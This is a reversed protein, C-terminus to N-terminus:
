QDNLKAIVAGYYNNLFDQQPVCLGPMTGGWSWISLQVTPQDVRSTIESVLMVYHNPFQTMLWDSDKPSNQAAKILNLHILLAIDTGPTMTLGTAQPIGALSVWNAQDDVSQYIGTAQLWSTLEEPRTLASLNSSPDGTWTGQWFVDTSNRLAGLFMWDAQPAVSAGMRPVMANYDQNLLDPSPTVQLSGIAASGNEFLATAFNAFAVPDRGCWMCMFTAPGCLNLAGQQILRPNAVIDNLRDAVDARSLSSWPSTGDRGKFNAIVAQADSVNSVTRTDSSREDTLQQGLQDADDFSENSGM